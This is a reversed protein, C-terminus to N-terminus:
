STRAQLQTVKAGRGSGIVGVLAVDVRIGTRQGYMYRSRTSGKMCETCAGWERACSVHLEDAVRILDAVSVEVVDHLGDAFIVAIENQLRAGTLRDEANVEMLVLSM